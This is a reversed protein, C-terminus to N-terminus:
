RRVAAAFKKGWYPWWWITLLVVGWLPQTTALAAVGLPLVLVVYFFIAGQHLDDPLRDTLRVNQMTACM